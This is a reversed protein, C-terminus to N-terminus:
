AEAHLEDQPVSGSEGGDYAIHMLCPLFVEPEGFSGKLSCNKFSVNEFLKFFM